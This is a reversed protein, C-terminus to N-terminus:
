EVDVLEEDDVDVLADDVDVEDEVDSEEGGWKEALQTAAETDVDAVGVLRTGPHAAINPAHIRGIRGAGIVAISLM